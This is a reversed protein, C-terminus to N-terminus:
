RHYLPIIFVSVILFSYLNEHFFGKHYSGPRGPQCGSVFQQFLGIFIFDSDEFLALIHAANGFGDIILSVPHIHAAMTEEGLHRFHVFPPFVHKGHLPFGGIVVDAQITLHGHLFAARIRFFLIADHELPVANGADIEILLKEVVRNRQLPLSEFIQPQLGVDDGREAIQSGDQVLPFLLRQLVEIDIAEPFLEIGHKKLM